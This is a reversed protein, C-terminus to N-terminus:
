PPGAARSDVRGPPTPGVTFGRRCGGGFGGMARGGAPSFVRRLPICDRGRSGVPEGALGPSSKLGGYGWCNNVELKILTSCIIELMRAPQHPPRTTTTTTWDLYAVSM